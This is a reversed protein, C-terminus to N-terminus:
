LGRGPPHCRAVFGCGLAECAPRDLAAGLTPGLALAAELQGALAALEVPPESIWRLKAEDGDLPFVAARVQRDEGLMRHLAELMVSAAGGPESRAGAVFLIAADGRDGSLLLDFAGDVACAGLEVRFPVSASWAFGDAFPRLAPGLRRLPTILRLAEAEALTLGARGAAAALAAEPLGAAWADRPLAALLRRVGDLRGDRHRPGLAM